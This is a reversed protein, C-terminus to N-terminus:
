GEPLRYERDQWVDDYQKTGPLNPNLKPLREEKVLPIMVDNIHQKVWFATHMTKDKAAEELSLAEFTKVDETTSAGRGFLFRKISKLQIVSEQPLPGSHMILLAVRAPTNVGLGYHSVQRRTPFWVKVLKLIMQLLFAFYRALEWKRAEQRFKYSPFDEEKLGHEVFDNQGMSVFNPENWKLWHEMIRM